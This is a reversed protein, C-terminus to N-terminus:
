EDTDLKRNGNKYNIVIGPEVNYCYVCFCIGEGTDEVSYAEMLMGRCVLESGHFDPTVRYMVHNGTKKIYEATENEFPLMGSVNMYRTCTVLNYENANEASLEYAILHCRNYLHRDPIVEPYQVTHWGTPKVGGIAGREGTPLTDLGLCAYATQCRGLSDFDSYTEFCVTTLDEETFHPINGNIRVYPIGSYEPIDEMDAASVNNSIGPAHEYIYEYWEPKKEYLFSITLSLILLILISKGSKRM